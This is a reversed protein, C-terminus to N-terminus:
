RRNGLRAEYLHINRKERETARSVKSEVCQELAQYREVAASHVVHLWHKHKVVATYPRKLDYAALPYIQESAIGGVRVTAIIPKHVLHFECQLLNVYYPVKAELLNFLWKASTSHAIEKRQEPRHKARPWAILGRPQAGRQDHSGHLAGSWLLERGYTVGHKDRWLLQNLDHAAGVAKGDHCGTEAVWRM